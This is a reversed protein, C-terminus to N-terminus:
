IGALNRAAIKMFDEDSMSAYHDAQSLSGRGGVTQVAGPKNANQIARQANQNVMPAQDVSQARSNLQALLYAAEYPNSTNQIMEAFIPNKSTLEPVHQTVQAKWDPYETKTKLARLEDQFENRLKENEGKLADFAQKVNQGRAYDELDWDKFPDAEQKVPVPNRDFSQTKNFAEAQGKWYEREQIAKSIEDRMARFNMEKDSLKEQGAADPEYVGSLPAEAVQEENVGQYSNHNNTVEPFLESGPRSMDIDEM